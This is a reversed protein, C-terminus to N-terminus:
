TTSESLLSFSMGTRKESLPNAILNWDELRMSMGNILVLPVVGRVLHEEGLITYGLQACDSLSFVRSM